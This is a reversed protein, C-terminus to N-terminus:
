SSETRDSALPGHPSLSSFHQQWSGRVHGMRSGDKESRAGGARKKVCIRKVRVGSVCAGREFGGEDASRLGSDRGEARQM